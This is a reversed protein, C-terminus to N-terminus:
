SDEAEAMLVKRSVRESELGDVRQDDGVRERVGRPRRRAPEARLRPSGSATSAAPTSATTTAAAVVGM